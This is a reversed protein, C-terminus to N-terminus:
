VLEPPHRDGTPEGRRRGKQTVASILASVDEPALHYPAFLTDPLRDVATIALEGPRMLRRLWSLVALGGFGTGLVVAKAM